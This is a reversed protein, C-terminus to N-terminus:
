HGSWASTAWRGSSNTRPRAPFRPRCPPSAPSATPILKCRPPSGTTPGRVIDVAEQPPLNQTSLSSLVQMDIGNADMDALRGEGIDALQQPSPTYSLKVSPDVGQRSHRDGLMFPAVGAAMVAPDAYHEELTIIKMPRAKRPPALEASSLGQARAIQVLIGYHPGTV